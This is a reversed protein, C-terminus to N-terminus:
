LTSRLRQQKETKSKQYFYNGVMLTTVIGAGVLLIGSIKGTQTLAVAAREEGAQEGLAKIEAQLSRIKSAYLNKLLKNPANEYMRIYNQLSAKKKEYKIRPDGGFLFSSAVPAYEALMDAVSAESEAGGTTETAGYVSQVIKTNSPIFTSM